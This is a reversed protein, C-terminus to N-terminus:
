KGTARLDALKAYRIRGNLSIKAMLTPTKPAWSNFCRQPVNEVGLYTAVPLDGVHSPLEDSFDFPEQDKYPPCKIVECKGGVSLIPASVSLSQQFPVQERIM